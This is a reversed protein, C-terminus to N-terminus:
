PRREFRQELLALVAAARQEWSHEQALFVREDRKYAPRLIWQEAAQIFEDATHVYSILEGYPTLEPVGSAIIPKGTAMFEWFKLPFSAENYQSARYPIVCVDFSQVFRPVAERPVTGLLHVNPLSVLQQLDHKDAGILPSGIFVFQWERRRRAADILLPFDIKYSDLAGVMGFIPHSIAQLKQPATGPPQSYLAVDGANLVLHTASNHPSKLAYLRRSTVTVLRARQLILAEEEGVRQRNREAGAQAAHDDVCDYLVFAEPFASLYEAAETDYLWLCVSPGTFGLRAAASVIRQRNLWHNFLAILKFERSGPILNWQAIIYFHEGRKEFHVLRQWLKKIEEWGGGSWLSRMMQRIIWVRPEVYLVPYVTSVRSMMHQRNTWYLQDYVAGAFCIISLGARKEEPKSAGIMLWRPLLRSRHAEWFIYFSFVAFWGMRWWLSPEALLWWSFFILAGVFFALQFTLLRIGLKRWALVVMTVYGVVAGAAVASAALFADPALLLVAVILITSTATMLGFAYARLNSQDAPVFVSSTGIDMLSYLFFALTMVLVVPEASIYEPGLFYLIEPAFFILVLALLTLLVMVRHMNKTVLREFEDRRTTFLSSMWSLNVESLAAAVVTLKSGFTLSLNFDALKDAALVTGLALLPLRHWIVFFIRSAYMFLGIRMVQRGYRRFDARSPWALYGQLQRTLIILFLLVMISTTFGMAWFFGAVGWVWTLYGFVAVNIVATAIQVAYLAVFNKLGALTAGLVDQLGQLILIGAFIRIYPVIEPRGYIGTGIVDACGLLLASLPLTVMQRAIHSVWFVKGIDRKDKLVAIERITGDVIGL